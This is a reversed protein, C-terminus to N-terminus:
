PSLNKMLDYKEISQLNVLSYGQILIKAM